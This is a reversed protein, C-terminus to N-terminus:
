VVSKRDGMLAEGMWPQVMPETTHTGWYNIAGKSVFLAFSEISVLALTLGYAMARIKEIHKPYTYEHLWCWVMLLMVASSFIYPLEFLLLAVAFLMAANWTCFVRHVFNPVVFALVVQFLGALAWNSAQEIGAASFSGVANFIVFMVLVQGTLSIALGLHELFTQESQRLIFFAGGILLSGLIFVAVSNHMLLTFVLMLFSLGFLAAWWGAVALLFKVYWPSDVQVIEPMEGHVLDAAKLRQWIKQSFDNM